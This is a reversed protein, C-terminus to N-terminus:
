PMTIVLEAPAGTERSSLRIASSGPTAVIFSYTGPGTVVSSVDLEVWTGGSFASSAAVPSPDFSPATDYTVTSEDWGDASTHLTIGQSGSTEAFIRFMVQTPTGGLEPVDFRVLSLRIPSNDVRLVSGGYNSGGSTSNLYADANTQVTQVSPVPDVTISVTAANSPQGADDLAVYTFTTLGTFGDAPAFTYSGDSSLALTGTTPDVDQDLSATIPGGEPDADNGLVGPAPVVLPVAALTSAGDDRATPPDNPTPTTDVDLTPANGSERSALSISSNSTTSVVFSYAGPGTVLPTVDLEVWSGGSIGGSADTVTGSYGPESAFTLTQEDWATSASHVRIGTGNSSNAFIRLTARTPTDALPPVVFRLYAHRDPSADPRLTSTSGYNTNANSADVYADAEAAVTVSTVPVVVSITVTAENSPQGGEDLAHYGFTADGGFGPAPTFDFSGDSSFNLTGAGSTLPTALTATLPGGEPDSDNSLVGPAPATLTSGGAVDYSENAAIPPDDVVTTSVDLVPPTGSERSALSISTSSPTRLVFSYTGPGTVLSSVDFELWTGAGFPGTASEVTPNYGPESAYTLTGEAWSSSASHLEIGASSGSSAYVLLTARTVASSLPPVTFQFYAHREPSVDVRLTSTSGYNSGTNAADVYADGIPNVAVETVPQQVTITVTSDNSPQAVSDLAHYTFVADGAFSPDPDFTFGGDAALSLAGAAAPTLSGALEATLAGGEPDSDNGLIGPAPVVLVQDSSTTYADDGATPPDNAAQVGLQLMPPFTSERSALSLQSDSSTTVVFSYTGPGTIMSTVDVSTWVGANYPGSTGIVTSSYGPETAASLSAEVWDNSNAAHVEYGVGHSSNAYLYLTAQQVEGALPPVVFRLYSHLDPSADARLTDLSGYKGNPSSVNVYGDADPTTDYTLPLPDTTVDVPDSQASRNGAADFADVRYRYATSAAVTLDTYTTTPASATDILVGDRYIGYGSTIINDISADWTLDVEKFTSTAQLNSPATPPQTDTVGSCTVTGSDLTAGSTNVYAFSAAVPTLELRLAGFGQPPTDIGVALRTDTRVFGQIGHGGGGAVFQTIGSGSPNGAGDLPVWRQYSHDHGTLVIDVGSQAMLQWMAAMRATDGQPGVSYVPHHFYVLTCAPSSALQQELFAYQPTGPDTENLNSNLAIFRWGGADVAYYDPINDWYNLYGSAVGNEYEHNGVIPNSVDWLLGFLATDRKGYWNQFETYSGKEYVDGLFMFMNPNMSVALNAVDDSSSEGSGGDGTAVLVFPEGPAPTTGSKPTWTNTNLPPTSIGNSFQVAVATRATTFNDRMLAEVELTHGGDVWQDTPLNFTYPAQFDTAIYAGDLYFVMRRIGPDSGTVSTSASVVAEGSLVQAAAPQDICLSVSYGSPGSSNCAAAAVPTRSATLVLALSVLIILAHRTLGPHSPTHRDPSASRGRMVTGTM